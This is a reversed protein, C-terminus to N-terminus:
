VDQEMYNLAFGSDAESGNENGDLVSEAVDKKVAVNLDTIRSPFREFFDLFSQASIQRV